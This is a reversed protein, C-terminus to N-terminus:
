SGFRSFINQQRMGADHEIREASVVASSIWWREEEGTEGLDYGLTWGRETGPGVEWSGYAELMKVETCAKQRGASRGAAEIGSMRLSHWRVSIDAGEGGEGVYGADNEEPAM